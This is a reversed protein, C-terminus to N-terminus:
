TQALMGLWLYALATPYLDAPIADPDLSRQNALGSAIAAVMAAFQEAPIPITVGARACYNEVLKAILTRVTQLYNAIRQRVAPRTAAAATFEAYATALPPAVLYTDFWDRIVDLLQSPEAASLDASLASENDDFRQHLVNLFLDFKDDFNAYIAGRTYGARAAIEELTADNFGREAFVATAADALLRRTHQQTQARPVVM